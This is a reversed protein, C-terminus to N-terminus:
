GSWEKDKPNIRNRDSKGAFKAREVAASTL